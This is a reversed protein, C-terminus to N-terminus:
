TPGAMAGRWEPVERFELNIDGTSAREGTEGQKAMDDDDGEERDSGQNIPEIDRPVASRLRCSPPSSFIGGGSGSGIELKIVTSEVIDCERSIQAPAARSDWEEGQRRRKLLTGDTEAPRRRCKELRPRSRRVREM